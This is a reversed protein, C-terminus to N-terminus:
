EKNRFCLTHITGQNQILPNKFGQSPIPIPFQFDVGGGGGGVERGKAVIRISSANPPAQPIRPNGTLDINTNAQAFRDERPMAIGEVKHGKQALSTSFISRQRKNHGRTFLTQLFTQPHHFKPGATTNGGKEIRSMAVPLTFFNPEVLTLLIKGPTRCQEKHVIQFHLFLSMLASISATALMLFSSMKGEIWDRELVHIEARNELLAATHSLHIELGNSIKSEQQHQGKGERNPTNPNSLKKNPQSRKTRDKRQEM